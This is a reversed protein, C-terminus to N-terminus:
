MSTSPPRTLAVDDLFRNFVDAIGDKDLLFWGQKEEDRVVTSNNRPRRKRAVHSMRVGWRPRRRRQGNGDTTYDGAILSREM